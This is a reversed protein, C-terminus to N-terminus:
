TDRSLLRDGLRRLAGGPVRRLCGLFYEYWGSGYPVYCRVEHGDRALADQLDPRVGFLMQLEFAEEDLGLEAAVRLVHDVAREDHTAIAPRRGRSLLVRIDGLFAADIEARKRYVVDAAEWYGGKVLRIRSGGELLRELYAARSRLYSQLVIGVADPGWAERVEEFLRLTREVYPSEEMDICVFIGLRSACDLVRRLLARCLAENVDLGIQTLKVSLQCDLGEAHIRRISAVAADAAARAEAEARVHTGVHNLTGRIGRADLGRVAALGAGLDEGAVFRWAMDRIGPTTVAMKRLWPQRVVVSSLQRLM